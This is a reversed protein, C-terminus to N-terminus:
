ALRRRNNARRNRFVLDVGLLGLALGALISELPFGPIPPPTPQSTGSESYTSTSTLSIVTYFTSTV